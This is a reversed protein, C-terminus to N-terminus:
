ISLYERIYFAMLLEFKVPAADIGSLLLEKIKRIRYVVTNRHTHLATATDQLNCDSLLYARLTCLYESSHKVDYEELTQLREKYFDELLGPDSACFLTQFVGMQDFCVYPRRWFEAAALAFRARKYQEAIRLLSPATGSVGLAISDCYCLTEIVGPLSLGPQPATYLLVHLNDHEFLHYKLGYSNLPSAVRTVDALSRIAIVRYDAAAPFGWRALMRVTSEPVPSQYLVSQFAASLNDDRHTDQLFHTCFEQMIDALHIEWPMTFLPIHNEECFTLIEPTIDSAQLYRGVNLLIASCNCLTLTQIFGFLSVGSQTFLGTTIAFEGGKLFSANQIDEALYVWSASNCLGSAGGHLTLKYKVRASEYLEKVQTRM